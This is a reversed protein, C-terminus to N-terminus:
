LAGLGALNAARIEANERVNAPVGNEVDEKLGAMERVSSFSIGFMLRTSASEM